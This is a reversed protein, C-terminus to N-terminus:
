ANDNIRVGVHYLNSITSGVEIRLTLKLEQCAVLRNCLGEDVLTEHRLLPEFCRRELVYQRAGDAGLFRLRLDRLEVDANAARQNEHATVPQRFVHGVLLDSFGDLSHFRRFLARFLQQRKREIASSGVVDRDDRCSSEREGGLLARQLGLETYDLSEVSLRPCPIRSLLCHGEECRVAITEIEIRRLSIWKKAPSPLLWM